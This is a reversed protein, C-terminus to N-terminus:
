KDGKAIVNTKSDDLVRSSIVHPDLYYCREGLPKVTLTIDGSDNSQTILRVFSEGDEIVKQM